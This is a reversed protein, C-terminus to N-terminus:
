SLKMINKGQLIHSTKSCTAYSLRDPEGSPLSVAISPPVKNESSLESPVLSHDYTLSELNALCVAAIRAPRPVNGIRVWRGQCTGRTTSLKTADVNSRCHGNFTHSWPFPPLSVRRSMNKGSRIDSTNRSSVSSKAADLLLSELDKPEALVLRKLIDEPQYSPLELPNAPTDPKSCSGQISSCSLSYM